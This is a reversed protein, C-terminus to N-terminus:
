QLLSSTLSGFCGSAMKLSFRSLTKRYFTSLYFGSFRVDNKGRSVDRVRPNDPRIQCGAITGTPDHLPILLAPLNIQAQSFGLSKLFTRNKATDDLTRYGRARAVYDSVGSSRLMAAHENSLRGSSLNGLVSAFDISEAGELRKGDPSVEPDLFDSSDTNFKERHYNQADPPAGKKIDM